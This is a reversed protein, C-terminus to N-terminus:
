NLISPTQQLLSAVEYSRSTGLSLAVSLTCCGGKGIVAPANLLPLLLLQRIVLLHIAGDRGAPGDVWLGM